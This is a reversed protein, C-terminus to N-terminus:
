PLVYLVDSNQYLCTQADPGFGSLVPEAGSENGIYRECITISLTPDVLFLSRLTATDGFNSNVGAIGDGPARAVLNTIEVHREFSDGCNGCSRYLKGFNEVYFNNIRVTGGGNHQLVKDAAARAGGCNISVSTDDSEGLFTAADEGVDEWWVNELTCDGLCHIGDAAPAGLIVNRLVAGDELEFLPDLGETQDDQGLEGTGVFRRMGGDFQGDIQMSSGLSQQGSNAPFPPCGPFTPAVIPPPLGPTGGSGGQAPMAGTGGAANSGGSGSVGAQGGMGVAPTGATGGMTGSPQSGPSGGVGPMNGFSGTDPEDNSGCAWLAGALM